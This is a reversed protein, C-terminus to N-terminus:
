TVVLFINMAIQSGCIGYANVFTFTDSVFKKVYNTTVVFGFPQFVLPYWKHEERREKLKV